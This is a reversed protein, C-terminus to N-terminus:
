LMPFGKTPKDNLLLNGAATIGSEKGVVHQCWTFADRMAKDLPTKSKRIAGGGILDYLECIVDRTERFVNVRSLWVDARQKASLEQGAELQQWQTSLAQVLYARAANYRMEARGITEMVKENERILAQTNFDRKEALNDYAFDLASRCVGLPIGAMKRLFTDNRQWLTGERKAPEVLSFSHKKEFITNRTHYDHSGTGRLGTTDWNDILTFKDPTGLVIIWEHSGDERLKPKGDEFVICGAAIRDAHKIGSGFTWQGTVRYSDGNDIAKGGPYVWGAQILDLSPYFQEAVTPDLYGSYIGSDCGIMVCWGAESSVTSLTEIIELQELTTLEPGGWAKPMAMRFCGAERLLEVAARPLTCESEATETLSKLRPLIEAVNARISDANM